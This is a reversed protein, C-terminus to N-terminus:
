AMGEAYHIIRCGARGDLIYYLRRGDEEMEMHSSRTSTSGLASLSNDLVIVKERIEKLKETAKRKAELQKVADNHLKKRDTEMKKKEELKRREEEELKLREEEKEDEVKMSNAKKKKKKKKGDKKATEDAAKRKKKAEERKQLFKKLSRKVDDAMTVRVTKTLPNGVTIDNSVFRGVSTIFQGNILPRERQYRLVHDTDVGMANIPTVDMSKEFAKNVELTTVQIGEGDLGAAINCMDALKDILFLKNLADNHDLMHVIAARLPAHAQSPM